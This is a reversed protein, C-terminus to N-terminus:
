PRTAFADCQTPVRRRRCVTELIRFGAHSEAFVQLQIGGSFGPRRNRQGVISNSDQLHAALLRTDYKFCMKNSKKYVIVAIVTKWTGYISFCLFVIETVGIVATM